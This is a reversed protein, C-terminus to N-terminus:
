RERQPRFTRLLSPFAFDSIRGRELGFNSQLRTRAQHPGPALRTRAQHPGPAPKTRAQNPGPAPRAQHPGPPRTRAQHPGPAPRTRGQCDQTPCLIAAEIRSRCCSQEPWEQAVCLIARICGQCDQTPRLIAAKIRSRCCSQEPWEQAVCLIARICCWCSQSPATRARACGQPPAPGATSSGPRLCTM